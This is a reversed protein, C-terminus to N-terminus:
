VFHVQSLEDAFNHLKKEIKEVTKQSPKRHGTLYHSLQGQNIGTLRELGALSLVGSYYQLFSPVDYKFVFVLEPFDKGTEHYYSKMEEYSNYFDDMTEKVSKGDGILGFSLNNTDMYASYNGDTGREIIVTVKM